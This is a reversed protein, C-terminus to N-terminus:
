SLVKIAYTRFDRIESNLDDILQNVVTTKDDESLLRYM